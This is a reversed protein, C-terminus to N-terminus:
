EDEIVELDITADKESEPDSSGFISIELDDAFVKVKEVERSGNQTTKKVKVKDVQHEKVQTM